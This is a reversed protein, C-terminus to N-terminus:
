GSHPSSRATRRLDLRRLVEEAPVLEGRDAEANAEALDALQEADLDADGDPAVVTVATGEPLDAFDDSVAVGGRITAAIVRSM